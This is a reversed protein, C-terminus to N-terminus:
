EKSHLLFSTGLLNCVTTVRVRRLHYKEFRRHLVLVGRGHKKVQLQCSESLNRNLVNLQPKEQALIALLLCTSPLGVLRDRGDVRVRLSPQMGDAAAQPSPLRCAPFLVRERLNQELWLLNPYPDPDM